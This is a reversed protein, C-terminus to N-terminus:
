RREFVVVKTGQTLKLRNFANGDLDEYDIKVEYLDYVFQEEKVPTLPFAGQGDLRAMLTQDIHDVSLMAGLEQSYFQGTYLPLKDKDVKIKEVDPTGVSMGQSIKYLDYTADKTNYNVGNACLAVATKTSPDYVLMSAFGDIAGTHGYLTKNATKYEFIGLGFGDQLSIMKDLSAESVLKGNFLGYIFTCLDAPTSVIGGAGGPISMHTEPLKKWGSTSLSFSTAENREPTADMGYYTDKLGLKDVIMRQVALDYGMGSISEVIFGLLVFNSNSYEGKEGPKFSTPATAIKAILSAKSTEDFSSILYTSSKTFDGIGSHHNLLQEITIKSANPVDKFFKSLKTDLSLAGKEVLQMIMTATFTKTISGIRYKTYANVTGWEKSKYNLHGYGKEFDVRGNKSVAVSAMLKDTNYLKYLYDNLKTDQGKAIPLLSLLLLFAIIKKM